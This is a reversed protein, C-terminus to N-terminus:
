QAECLLHEVWKGPGHVTLDERPVDLYIMVYWVGSAVLTPEIITSAHGCVLEWQCRPKYSEARTELEESDIIGTDDPQM